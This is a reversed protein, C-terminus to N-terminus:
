IDWLGADKGDKDDGLMERLKAKARDTLKYIKKVSKKMIRSIEEPKMDEFFRLYIVTRQDTPLTSMADYLRRYEERRVLSNEPLASEDAVADEGPHMDSRQHNKRLFMFARKTAIAYLWTKFSSGGRGTYRSTTAIVVAFCDMMIEQADDFNHVIGALFYTLQECHRDFLLRMAEEDESSIFRAYLDEDTRDM